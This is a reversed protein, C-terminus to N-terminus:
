SRRWSSDAHGDEGDPRVRSCGNPQSWASSQPRSHSSRSRLLSWPRGSAQAQWSKTPGEVGPSFARHVVLRRDRLNVDGWRLALLEGLRLGTYAAVRYLEADQEDERQRAQAEEDSLNVPRHKRHAGAAAFRAIQEVEEPEYFDLVAPPPERRKTTGAAPNHTLGYTEDRSAYNFAASILHRHRNM